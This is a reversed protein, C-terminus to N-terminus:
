GTGHITGIVSAIIGLASLIAPFIAAKATDLTIARFFRCPWSHYSILSGAYSEFLDAGM